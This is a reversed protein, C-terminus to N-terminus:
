QRSYAPVSGATIPLSNNGFFRLAELSTNGILGPSYSPAGLARNGLNSLIVKRAMYPAAAASLEAAAVGPHGVALSTLAGGGWLADLKSVGVGGQGPVGAFDGFQDAFNAAIEMEGSLPKGKRLDSRLLKADVDNGKLARLTQYGKAINKRSAGWADALDGLGSSRLHRDLLDGVAEAAHRQGRALELLQSNGQAGSFSEKARENLLKYLDVLNDTSHEPVNISNVLESVHQNGQAGIGTYTNELNGPINLIDNLDSQYQPDSVVRQPAGNPERVQGYISGERSIVGEVADRTIASNPALGLDARVAANTAQQNIHQAGQRTAAKGSISELVTNIFSPNTATPPVVYGRQTADSLIADRASNRSEAAVAAAEREALKRTAGNSLGRGILTGGLGLAGGLGTNFLTEQSSTSPALLGTGAGILASGALTNAGPVFMVPAVAAMNGLVDGSYGANTNLLPADLQRKTQVDQRNALGFTQAVGQATNTMGAGMGAWFKQFNSMGNTPDFDARAQPSGVPATSGDSLRVLNQSPPAATKSRLYDALKQANETDGAAHAARLADYVETLDAM